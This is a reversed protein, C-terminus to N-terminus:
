PSGLKGPPWYRLTLKGTVADAPVPGWERSDASQGRNDGLVFLHDDPITVAAPFNCVVCRSNARIYPEDQVQGNLVVRGDRIAVRDGGVAVVRKVFKSESRDATGQPCVSGERPRTGCTGDDAGAPPNFVIIDGRGPSGLDTTLFREGM